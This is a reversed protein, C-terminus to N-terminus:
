PKDHRDSCYRIAKDNQDREEQLFGEALALGQEALLISEICLWGKVSPHMLHDSDFREYATDTDANQIFACALCHIRSRESALVSRLEKIKELMKSERCDCSFTSCMICCDHDPDCSFEDTPM